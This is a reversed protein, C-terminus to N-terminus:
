SSQYGFVSPTFYFGCGSGLFKAELGYLYAAGSLDIRCKSRRSGFTSISDEYM